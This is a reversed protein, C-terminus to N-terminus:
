FGIRKLEAAIWGVLAKQSASDTKSAKFLPAFSGKFLEPEQAELIIGGNEEQDNELNDYDVLVYEISADNSIVGQVVGGRVVIVIKTNEM